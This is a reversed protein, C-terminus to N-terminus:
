AAGSKKAEFDLQIESLKDLIASLKMRQEPDLEALLAAEYALAMPVINEYIDRGLDTLSLVSRRKDEKAFKRAVKGTELLKSVARSVAVKDMATREAVDNASLGPDEGLVAVVRWEPVTLGFKQEYLDAIAQSIRNSLVSLRYPLFEALKLTSRHNDGM